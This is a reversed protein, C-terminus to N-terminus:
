ATGGQVQSFDSLIILLVLHEDSAGTPCMRFRSRSSSYCRFENSYGDGFLNVRVDVCSFNDTFTPSSPCWLQEMIAGDEQWELGHHSGYVKPNEPMSWM